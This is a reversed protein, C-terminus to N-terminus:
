YILSITTYVHCKKFSKVSLIWYSTQKAFEVNCFLVM